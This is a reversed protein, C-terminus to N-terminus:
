HSAAFRVYALGIAYLRALPHAARAAAQSMQRGLERLGEEAAAALLAERDRFHAYSASPSVGVRRAVERLSLGAAGERDVIALAANILADRLQRHHYQDQSKARIPRVLPSRRPM